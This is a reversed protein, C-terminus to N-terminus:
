RPQGHQHYKRTSPAGAPSVIVSSIVTGSMGSTGALLMLGVNAMGSRGTHLGSPRVQRCNSWGPLRPPRRM